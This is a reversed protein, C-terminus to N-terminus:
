LTVGLRTGQFISVWDVGFTMLRINILDKTLGREHMFAQM